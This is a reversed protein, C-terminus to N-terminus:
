YSGSLLLAFYIRHTTAHLTVVRISAIISAINTIWRVTNGYLKTMIDSISICGQFQDINKGYARAIFLWFFPVFLYYYLVDGLM